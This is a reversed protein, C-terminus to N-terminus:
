LYSKTCYKPDLPDVILDPATRANNIETESLLDEFRHVGKPPVTQVLNGAQDYYYLTYHYERDFYTVDFTEVLTAIAKELYRERFNRALKELYIEEQNKANVTDTNATYMECPFDFNFEPYYPVPNPPCIPQETLYM